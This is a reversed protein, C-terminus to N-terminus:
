NEECIDALWERVNELEEPDCSEILEKLQETRTKENKPEWDGGTHIVKVNLSEAIPDNFLIVLKGDQEEVTVFNGEGYIGVAIGHGFTHASVTGAHDTKKMLAMKKRRKEAFFRLM